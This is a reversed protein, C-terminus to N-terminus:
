AIIAKIKNSRISEVLKKQYFAIESENLASYTRTDFYPLAVLMAVLTLFSFWFVSFTRVTLHNFNILKYRM